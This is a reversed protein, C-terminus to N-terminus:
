EKSIVIWIARSFRKSDRKRKRFAQIKNNDKSGCAQETKFVVGKEM